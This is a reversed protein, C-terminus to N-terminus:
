LLPAVPFPAGKAMPLPPHLPTYGVYLLDGFRKENVTGIGDLRFANFVIGAVVAIVLHSTAGRPGVYAAFYHDRPAPDNTRPDPHRWVELPHRITHEIWAAYAAHNAKDALKKVFGRGTRVALGEYNRFVRSARGTLGLAGEVIAERQIGTTGRVVIPSTPNPRAFSNVVDQWDDMGLGLYDFM